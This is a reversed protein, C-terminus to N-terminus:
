VGALFDRIIFIESVQSESTAITPKGRLSAEENKIAMVEMMKQIDQEYEPHIKAWSRQGDVPNQCYFWELLRLLLTKAAKVQEPEGWICLSKRSTLRQSLM